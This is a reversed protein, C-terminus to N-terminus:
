HLNSFSSQMALGAWSFFLSFIARAKKMSTHCNGTAHLVHVQFNKVEANKVGM